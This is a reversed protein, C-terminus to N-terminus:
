FPAPVQIPAPLTLSLGAQRPGPDIPLDLAQLQSLLRAEIRPNAPHDLLVARTVYPHRDVAKEDLCRDDVLKEGLLHRGDRLVLRFANGPPGSFVEGLAEVIALLTPGDIRFDYAYGGGERF